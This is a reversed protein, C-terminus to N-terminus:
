SLRMWATETIPTTLLSAVTIAAFLPTYTYSATVVIYDGPEDVASGVASCDSPKNGPFSGVVVLQGTAGSVCYYNETTSTVAVNAGLTTSQAGATVAGALTPCNVTAPLQASQSCAAWAAQAAIQAANDLEMAQYLWIGFDIVSLMPVTLLALILAFEAAAAGRQIHRYDRWIRGTRAIRSVSNTM